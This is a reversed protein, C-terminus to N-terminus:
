GLTELALASQRVRDTAVDQAVLRPLVDTADAPRRWEVVTQMLAHRAFTGFSGLASDSWRFGFKALAITLHRISQPVEGAFLLAEGRLRHLQGARDADIAAAGPAAEIAAIAGLAEGLAMVAERYVGGALATTGATEWYPLARDPRSARSWHLGLL